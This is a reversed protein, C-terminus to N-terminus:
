YPGSRIKEIGQGTKQVLKARGIMCWLALTVLLRISNQRAVLAMARSFHIATRQCLGRAVIRTKKM